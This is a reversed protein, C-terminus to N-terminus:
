QTPDDEPEIFELAKAAKALYTPSFRAYVKRTIDTNSHGLFQAIEEMPIGDEAMWVAASHRFVHPSLDPLAVKRAWAKLGKNIRFVKQGGYEIVFRTTAKDKYSCLYSYALSNIPVVSRGKKNAMDETRLHILRRQLDIRDWTLELIAQRRAGTSLALVVFLKIHPTTIEDLLKRAEDKTIHYARPPPASPRPIEPVDSILGKKKSWVLCSRLHNLETLITGDMKGLARRAATYDEILKSDIQSAELHGLVPLLIRGTYGMAEGHRRGELAKRRAEWLDRILHGKSQAKRELSQQFESFRRLAEERDATGLSRRVADGKEDRWYVAYKGRYLQLRM